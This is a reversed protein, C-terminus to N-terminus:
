WVLRVARTGLGSVFTAWEGGPVVTDIFRGTVAGNPPCDEIFFVLFGVVEVQSSSIYDMQPIIVLRPSLWDLVTYHGDEEDRVVDEFTQTNGSIRGSNGSCGTGQNTPGNMNGTVVNKVQGLRVTTSSGHIILDRYVDASNNGTDDIDLAQFNGQTAGGCTGGQGGSGLKLCYQEGFQLGGPPAEEGWPMVGRMGGIIGVQSAGAAHVTGSTIGFVGGLAFGIARESYVTVTDNTASTTSFVVDGPGIAVGNRAAYDIAALTAEDLVQPDTSPLFTAAALAAADVGNQMERRDVFADSVDVSLAAMGAIVPLLLALLVAAAGEERQSRQVWRRFMM